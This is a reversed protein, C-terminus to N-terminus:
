ETNSRLVEFCKWPKVFCSQFVATARVGASSKSSGRGVVFLGKSRRHERAKCFADVIECCCCSSLLFYFPDLTVLVQLLLFGDRARGFTLESVDAIVNDVM